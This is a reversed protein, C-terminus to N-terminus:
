RSYILRLAGFFYLRVFIAITVAITFLLSVTFNLNLDLFIPKALLLWVGFIFETVGQILGIYMSERKRMGPRISLLCLLLIFSNLMLLIASINVLLQIVEIFGTM